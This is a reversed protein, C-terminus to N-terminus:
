FSGVSVDLGVVLMLRATFVMVMYSVRGVSLVLIHLFLIAEGLFVTEVPYVADYTISYLTLETKIRLFLVLVSVAVKLDL